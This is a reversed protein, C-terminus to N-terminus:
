PDGTALCDGQRLSLGLKDSDTSGSTWRWITKQCHGTATQSDIVATFLARMCDLETEPEDSLGKALGICHNRQLM